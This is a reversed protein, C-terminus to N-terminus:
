IRSLAANEDDKLERDTIRILRLEKLTFYADCLRDRDYKSKQPGTCLQEYPRDLGHWYLGDLQVYTNCSKVYFDIRYNNVSIHHIVDECGFRQILLEYLREEPRSSWM